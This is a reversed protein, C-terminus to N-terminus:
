SLAWATVAWILAIAVLAAALRGALGLYLLNPPSRRM